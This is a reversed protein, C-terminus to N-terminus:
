IGNTILDISGSSTFILTLKITVKVISVNLPILTHNAWRPKWDLLILNVIVKATGGLNNTTNLNIYVMVSSM